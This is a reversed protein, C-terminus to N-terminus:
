AAKRRRLRYGILAVVILGCGALTSPEPVAVPGVQFTFSDANAGSGWTWIYTGPTMGLSAFTKNTFTAAGSLTTGSIYGLPVLLVQTSGGNSIGVRDGTGSSAFTFPGPGFSTPGNLDRYVDTDALYTGVAVDAESPQVFAVTENSADLILAALNATGGGSLVVDSGVQTATVVIGARARGAGLLLGAIVALTCCRFSATMM